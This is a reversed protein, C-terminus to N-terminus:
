RRVNIRFKRDLCVILFAPFYNTFFRGSLMQVNSIIASAFIFYLYVSLYRDLYTSYREAQKQDYKMLLYVCVMVLLSSGVITFYGACSASMPILQSMSSGGLVYMNYLRYIREEPNIFHSVLPISGLLDSFLTFFSIKGSFADVAQLGLATPIVGSTYAQLDDTFSLLARIGTNQSTDLWPLKYSTVAAFLSIFVFIAAINLLYGKRGFVKATILLFLFLPMFTNLRSTSMSMVCQAFILVYAVIVYMIKEKKQYQVICQNILMGWFIIRFSGYVLNFVNSTEYTDTLVNGGGFFAMIQQMLMGRNAIIMVIALAIYAIMVIGSDLPKYELEQVPTKGKYLKPGFLAIVIFISVIEICTIVIAFRLNSTTPSVVFYRAVSYNGNICILLNTITYKLFMLFNLIRLGFFNASYYHFKNSVVFLLVFIFPIAPLLGWGEPKEVFACYFATIISSIIVVNKYTRYKTSM